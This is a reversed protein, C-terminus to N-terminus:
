FHFRFSNKFIFFILLYVVNFKVKLNNKLIEKNIERESRNRSSRIIIIAFKKHNYKTILYSNNFFLYIFIYIKQM